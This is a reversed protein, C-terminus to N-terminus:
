DAAGGPARRLLSLSNSIDPLQEPLEVKALEDITSLAAAVPTSETDFYSALRQRVSDLSRRYVEGEGRIVALRAIQLDVDLSSLLASEEGATLLPTFAQDDRKVSIIGKLADLIVRWARQWGSEDTVEDREGKYRGPAANAFELTDLSRALSGLKLVVGEADPRPVANLAAIEDSIAERVPTLSPDALERLQDDALQLARAAVGVNGALSLQANAVRLFYEAESRLWASRAKDSIGPVKELTTEIQALREPMGALDRDVRTTLESIDDDLGRDIRALEDVSDLVRDLDTARRELDRAVEGVRAEIIKQSQQQYWVYGSGAAAALAILLALFALGTGSRGAPKEAATPKETATAAADSAVESAPATADNAADAPQDETKDNM